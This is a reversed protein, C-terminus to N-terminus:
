LLLQLFAAYKHTVQLTQLKLETTPWDSEPVPDSASCYTKSSMLHGRNGGRNSVLVTYSRMLKESVHLM